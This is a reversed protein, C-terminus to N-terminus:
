KNMEKELRDLEDLAEEFEEISACHYNKMKEFFCNADYVQNNAELLKKSSRNLRKRAIKVNCRAAALAKGKDIDFTDEPNLKAVGKVEKGAYTSVAIVEGKAIGNEDVPIYYKYKGKYRNM